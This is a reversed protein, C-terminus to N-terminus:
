DEAVSLVYFHKNTRKQSNKCRIFKTTEPRYSSHVGELQQRLSDAKLERSQMLWTFILPCSELFNKRKPLSRCDLDKWINQLRMMSMTTDVCKLAWWTKLNRKPIKSLSLFDDVMKLTKQTRKFRCHCTLLHRRSVFVSTNYWIPSAVECRLRLSM